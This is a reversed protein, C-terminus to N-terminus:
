PLTFRYSLGGSFADLGEYGALLILHKLITVRIGANWKDADYDMMLELFDLHQPTIKVGGFFGIYQYTNAPIIDSGYGATLGLNRFVKKFHFNKTLVIYTSNFYSAGKGKATTYFGQFGVVVAPFYRSEKLPLGRLAIM